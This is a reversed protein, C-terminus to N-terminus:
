DTKCFSILLPLLTKEYEVGGVLTAFNDLQGLLELVINEEDDIFELYRKLYM